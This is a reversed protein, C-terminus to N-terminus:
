LASFVYTTEEYEGPATEYKEDIELLTSTLRTIVISFDDEETSSPEEEWWYVFKDADTHHWKWNAVEARILKNASFFQVLYTGSPSLLFTVRDVPHMENGDPDM